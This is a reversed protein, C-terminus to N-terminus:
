RLWLRRKLSFDLAGQLAGDWVKRLTDLSGCAGGINQKDQCVVHAEPCAARKASGNLCRVELADSIVSQTVVLVVRGRQARRRAGRQDGSAIMM